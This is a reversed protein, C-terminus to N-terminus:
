LLLLLSNNPLKGIPPSRERWARYLPGLSCHAKTFSRWLSVHVPLPWTPKKLLSTDKLNFKRSEWKLTSVLCRAKLLLPPSGATGGAAPLLFWLPQGAQPPALQSGLATDRKSGGEIQESSQSRKMVRWPFSERNQSPSLRKRLYYHLGSM